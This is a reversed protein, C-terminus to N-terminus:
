INVPAKRKKLKPMKQSRGERAGLRPYIYSFYFGSFEGCRQEESGLTGLHDSKMQGVKM